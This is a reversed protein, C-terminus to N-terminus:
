DRNRFWIYVVLMFIIIGVFSLTGFSSHGELKSTLWNIYLPWYKNFLEEGAQIIKTFDM